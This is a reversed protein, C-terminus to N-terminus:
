RSGTGKELGKFSEVYQIWNKKNTDNVVDLISVFRNFDFIEFYELRNEELLSTIIKKSDKSFRKATSVVIGNYNNNIYMAGLFDRITSVSEVVDNRSRRKVQVLIPKDSNVVLLDIGGDHSKGVHEVECNFYASFVYQALIELKQPNISYMKNKNNQIENILQKIAKEKKRDELNKIATFIKVDTTFEDKFGWNNTYTDEYNVEEVILYRNLLEWYGCDIISGSFQVM